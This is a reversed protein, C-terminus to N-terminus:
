IDSLLWINCISHNSPTVRSHVIFNLYLPVDVLQTGLGLILVVVIAHNNVTSRLNRDILICLLIFLTCILSPINFLLLIWFRTVRPISIEVNSFSSNTTDSLSNIDAM